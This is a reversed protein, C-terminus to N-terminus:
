LATYHEMELDTYRGGTYHELGVAVIYHVLGLAEIYHGLEELAIYHVQEGTYHAGPAIYHVGLVIYHQELAGATCHGVAVVICHEKRKNLGV